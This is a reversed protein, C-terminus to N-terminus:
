EKELLQYVGSFYACYTCHILGCIVWDGGYLGAMLVRAKSPSSWDRTALLLMSKSEARSLHEACTADTSQKRVTRVASMGAAQSVLISTEIPVYRASVVLITREIALNTTDLPDKSYSKEM